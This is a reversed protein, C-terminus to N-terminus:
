VFPLRKQLRAVLADTWTPCLRKMLDILYTERGILV